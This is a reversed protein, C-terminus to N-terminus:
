YKIEFFMTNGTKANYIYGKSMINIASNKDDVLQYKVDITYSIGNKNIKETKIHDIRGNELLYVIFNFDAEKEIKIIEEKNKVAIFKWEMSSIKECNFSDTESLSLLKYSINSISIINRVYQNVKDKETETLNETFSFNNLTAKENNASILFNGSFFEKEKDKKEIQIFFSM